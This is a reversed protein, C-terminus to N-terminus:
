AKTAGLKGLAAALMPNKSQEALEQVAPEATTFGAAILGNMYATAAQVADGQTTADILLWPASQGPKATGKGLVALVKQGIRGKLSGVLVRPFWLIDEYSMQDSIDHVNVRVADKEGMSTPISEVYELPEVVLLHGELDAPKVDSSSSAGPATFM